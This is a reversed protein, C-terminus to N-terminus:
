ETEAIERAFQKLCERHQTKLEECIKEAILNSRCGLYWLTEGNSGKIKVNAKEWRTWKWKLNETLWWKKLPHLNSKQVMRKYWIRKRSERGNRYGRDWVISSVTLPNVEAGNELKIMM